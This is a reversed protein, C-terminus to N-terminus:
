EENQYSTLLLSVLHILNRYHGQNQCDNEAIKNCEREISVTIVIYENTFSVRNYLRLMIM